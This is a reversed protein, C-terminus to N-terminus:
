NLSRVLAAANIFPLIHEAPSGPPLWKSSNAVVNLPVLLHSLPVPLHSLPVPLHSLPLPLHNLPVPLHSLPVPLHSLPVKAPKPPGTLEVYQKQLLAKIGKNYKM